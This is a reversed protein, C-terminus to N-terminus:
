TWCISIIIHCRYGIGPYLTLSKDATNTETIQFGPTNKCKPYSFTKLSLKASTTHIIIIIDEFVSDEKSNRPFEFDSSTAGKIVIFDHPVSKFIGPEYNEILYDVGRKLQIKCKVLADKPEVDFYTIKIGDEFTETISITENDCILPYAQFNPHGQNFVLSPNFRLLRNRNFLEPKKRNLRSNQPHKRTSFSRNKGTM